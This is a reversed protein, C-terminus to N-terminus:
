VGGPTVTDIHLRERLAALEAKLGLIQNLQRVQTEVVELQVKNTNSLQQSLLKVTHSLENIASASEEKFSRLGTAAFLGVQGLLASQYRDTTASLTQLVGPLFWIPVRYRQAPIREPEPLRCVIGAFTYELAVSGSLSADPGASKLLLQDGNAELTSEAIRVEEMERITLHIRGEESVPAPRTRARLREYLVMGENRGPRLAHEQFSLERSIKHIATEIDPHLVHHSAHAHCSPCIASDWEGPFGLLGKLERQISEVPNRSAGSIVVVTPFWPAPLLSALEQFGFSRHHHNIHYSMGCAKCITMGSPLNEMFPVTVLIYKGSVRQLEALAQGVQIDPLHELMDNAMVLDFAGDTYPLSTVSGVATERRVHALSALGVDLGVVRLHRPLANTIFGDGCGVDLISGIDMPLLNLIDRLVHQQYEEPPRGWLDERDYLAAREQM